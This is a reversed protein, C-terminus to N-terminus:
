IESCARCQCLISSAILFSRMLWLQLSELTLKYGLGFIHFVYLCQMQFKKAVQKSEIQRLRELFALFSFTM